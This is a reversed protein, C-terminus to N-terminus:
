AWQSVEEEPGARCIRPGSYHLHVGGRGWGKRPGGAPLCHDYSGSALVLPSSTCLQPSLWGLAPWTLFWTHEWFGSGPPCPVTAGHLNLTPLWLEGRENRSEGTLIVPFSMM